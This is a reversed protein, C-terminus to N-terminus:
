KDLNKISAEKSNKTELWEGFENNFKIFRNMKKFAKRTYYKAIFHQLFDTPVWCIWRRSFLEYTSLLLLLDSQSLDIKKRISIM